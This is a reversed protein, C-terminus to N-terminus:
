IEGSYLAHVGQENRTILAGDGALGCAIHGEWNKGLKKQWLPHMAKNALFEILDCSNIQTAALTHCFTEALEKAFAEKNFDRLLAIDALTLAGAIPARGSINIGWGIVLHQGKAEVLIGAVKLFNQQHYVGLDNPWKVALKAFNGHRQMTLYLAAGALLSCLHLGEGPKEICLSMTLSHKEDSLWERGRRGRGANQKDALVAVAGGYQTALAAATDQTSECIPLRFFRFEKKVKM